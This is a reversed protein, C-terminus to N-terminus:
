VIEEVEKFKSYSCKRCGNGIIQKKVRVYEYVSEKGCGTCVCLVSEYGIIPKFIEKM